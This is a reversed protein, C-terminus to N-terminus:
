GDPDPKETDPGSRSPLPTREESAASPPWAVPDDDGVLVWAFRNMLESGAATKAVVVFEAEGPVLQGPFEFIYPVRVAFGDDSFVADRSADQTVGVLEGWRTRITALFRAADEETEDGTGKIFAAEFGPIDGTMGSQIAARPGETLPIRIEANWWIMFGTTLPTVLLGIIIGIWAATRGRRGNVRVDRLGLLGLPISLVTVIPCLGLSTVLSVVAWASISGRPAAATPAGTM